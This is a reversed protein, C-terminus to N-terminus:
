KIDNLAMMQREKAREEDEAEELKNKVFKIMDEELKIFESLLTSKKLRMLLLQFKINHTKVYQTLKARISEIKKSAVAMNQDNLKMQISEYHMVRDEIFAKIKKQLINITDSNSLDTHSIPIDTCAYYRNLMKSKGPSIGFQISKALANQTHHLFESSEAVANNLITALFKKDILHEVKKNYHYLYLTIYYIPVPGNRMNSMIKFYEVCYHINEAAIDNFLLQYEIPSNTAPSKHMTAVPSAMITTNLRAIKKTRIKKEEDSDSEEYRCIRVDKKWYVRKGLISTGEM